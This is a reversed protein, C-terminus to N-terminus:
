SNKGNEVEKKFGKIFERLKFSDKLDLLTELKITKSIMNRDLHNMSCLGIYGPTISIRIREQLCIEMLDLLVKTEVNKM